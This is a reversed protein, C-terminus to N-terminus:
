RRVCIIANDSDLCFLLLLSARRGLVRKAVMVDRRDRCFSTPILRISRLPVVSRSAPQFYAWPQDPMFCRTNIGLRAIPSQKAVGSLFRLLHSHPPSLIVAASFASVGHQNVTPGSVQSGTVQRPQQSLQKNTTSASPM